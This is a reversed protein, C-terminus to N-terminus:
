GVESEFAQMAQILADVGDVGKANYISARFGGVSRHGKIGSINRQECFELFQQNHNDHVPVFCVNMTSRDDTCVTGTFLSNRDIEDYLEKAKHRNKKQIEELGGMKQLWKLTLMCVYIPFCPPTNFMSGKDIHTQYNLMTPLTRGARNALEKKLIVVTVGAPGLNKQAGAYILDYDSVKVPRSLFDSSMDAILPIDTEPFRHYQTGFITNNSTIHLYKAREPINYDKPIYSYNQDKSSAIVEIKGFLRAEKIAKSSWSGTDIYAASEDNTLINMPAMYFQTSAGGTLFLVEYEEPINYIERLLERATDIIEVFDKSRHSIELISLGSANLNVVGSAAEKMVEDPLIAPGASFNYIKM